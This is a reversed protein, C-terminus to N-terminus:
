VIHKYISIILENLKQSNILKPDYRCNNGSSNIIKSKSFHIFNNSYINNIWNDCYWNEIEADFLYGFIKWHRKSFFIQTLLNTNNLDIPGTIGIFNTQSLNYIFENEWGSNLFQIDDGLQYFYNCDPNNLIAIELLYNWKKVISNTEPPLKVYILECSLPIDNYETKNGFDNYDYGLYIYFYYYNFNSFKLFSKLFIDTFESNNLKITPILLSIFIM